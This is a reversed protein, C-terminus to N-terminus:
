FYAKNFVYFVYLINTKINIVLTLTFFIKTKMVNKELFLVDLTAFFIFYAIYM